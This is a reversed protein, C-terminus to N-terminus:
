MTDKLIVVDIFFDNNFDNRNVDDRKNYINIIKNNKQM